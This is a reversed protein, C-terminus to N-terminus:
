ISVMNNVGIGQETTFTEIMFIYEKGIMNM